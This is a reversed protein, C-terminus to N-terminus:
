LLNKSNTLTRSTGYEIRGNEASNRAFEAEAYRSPASLPFDTEGRVSWGVYVVWGESWIM